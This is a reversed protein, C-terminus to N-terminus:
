NARQSPIEQQRLTTLWFCMAAQSSNIFIAAITALQFRKVTVTSLGGLLVTMGLTLLAALVIVASLRYRPLHVSVSRPILVHVLSFVGVIIYAILFTVPFLERLDSPYITKEGNAFALPIDV